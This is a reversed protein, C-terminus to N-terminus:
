SDEDFDGLLYAEILQTKLDALYQEWYKQNSCGSIILYEVNRIEKEIADIDEKCHIRRCTAATASSELRSTKL